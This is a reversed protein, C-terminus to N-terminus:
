CKWQNCVFILPNAFLTSCMPIFIILWLPFPMKYQIEIKDLTKMFSIISAETNPPFKRLVSDSKTKTLNILKFDYILKFNFSQKSLNQFPDFQYGWLAIHMISM